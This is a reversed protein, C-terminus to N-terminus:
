SSAGESLLQWLGPPLVGEPNPFDIIAKGADAFHEIEARLGRSQEWGPLKAVILSRSVRMFAGDFTM